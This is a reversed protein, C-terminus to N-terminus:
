GVGATAMDEIPRVSQRGDAEYGVAIFDRWANRGVTTRLLEGTAADRKTEVFSGSLGPEVRLSAGDRRRPARRAGGALRRRDLARYAPRVGAPRWRDRGRRVFRGRPSWRFQRALRRDASEVIKVLTISLDPLSPPNETSKSRLSAPSSTYRHWSTMGRFPSAGSDVRMGRKPEAPRRALGSNQSANCGSWSINRAVAHERAARPPASNPRRTLNALTRERRLCPRATM